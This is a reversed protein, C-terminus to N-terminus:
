DRDSASADERADHRRETPTGQVRRGATAPLGAGRGSDDESSGAADDDAFYASDQGAAEGNGWPEIPTELM